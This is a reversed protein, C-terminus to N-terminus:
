QQERRNLHNPFLKLVKQGAIKGVKFHDEYKLHITEIGESFPNILINVVAPYLVPDM